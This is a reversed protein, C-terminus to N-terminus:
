RRSPSRRAAASRSRGVHIQRESAMRGTYLAPHRLKARRKHKGVLSPGIRGRRDAQRGEQPAGRWGPGAEDGGAAGRGCMGRRGLYRDHLVVDSQAGVQGSRERRHLRSPTLKTLTARTSSCRAGDRAIWAGRRGMEVGRVRGGVRSPSPRRRRRRRAVRLEVADLDAEHGGGPAPTPRPAPSHRRAM